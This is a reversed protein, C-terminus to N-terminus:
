QCIAQSFDCTWSKGIGECVEQASELSRTDCFIFFADTCGVADENEIWNGEIFISNCFTESKYMFNPFAERSMEGLNTIPTGDWIFTEEECRVACENLLKEEYEEECEIPCEGFDLEGMGVYFIGRQNISYAIEGCCLDYELDAEEWCEEDFCYGEGTEDIYDYNGFITLAKLFSAGGSRLYEGHGYSKFDLRIKGVSILFFLMFTILLIGLILYVLRKKNKEKAM